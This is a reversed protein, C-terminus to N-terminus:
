NLVDGIRKLGEILLEKSRGLSIRFHDPYNGFATGSTISVHKEKLLKDSFGRAGVVSRFRPFVYMAGDPRYVEMNAIKEIHQCITDAREKITASNVLAEEDCDLAAIAAYQVFEPVSTLMLSAIMAMKNIVDISSIAYGVRFGTMAWTKSFSGICIYNKANSELVSSCKNFSYDIYTEDSMVVLNRDNAIDIISNFTSTDLVKGTPNNPYNLVIARTNNRIMKKIAELSPNWGDEFRTNIVLPRAGIYTIAQKYAPWSPDIVIASEGEKLVSALGAYVAFRGGSTVITQDTSIDSNWKRKLYLTLSELLEPIGRTVTYHTKFNKLADICAQVVKEPPKFDPEGVDLRILDVGRTQMEEAKRFSQMPTELQQESSVGQVRKSEALLSNLIKFGAEASVEARACEEAVMDFLAMETEEDHIPLSNRAKIHGIKRALENREGVMRIINLTKEAIRERLMALEKDSNV